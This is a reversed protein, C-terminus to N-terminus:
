FTKYLAALVFQPSDLLKASLHEQFIQLSSSQDNGIVSRELDTANRDLPVFGLLPPPCKREIKAHEVVLSSALHPWAAVFGSQADLAQVGCLSDITQDFVLKM